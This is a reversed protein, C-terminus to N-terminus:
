LQAREMSPATDRVGYFHFGMSGDRIFGIVRVEPCALKAAVGYPIGTGIMGLRGHTM